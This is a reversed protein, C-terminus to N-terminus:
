IYNKNQLPRLALGIATAFALPYKIKKACNNLPQSINQWPNGMMCRLGTNKEIEPALNKFYAGTGCTYVADLLLDRAQLHQQYFELVQRLNILLDSLYAKAQHIISDFSISFIVLGQCVIFITTRATGIDIIISTTKPSYIKQPLISRAIAMTELEIVEPEWNVRSFIELYDNVISKKVAACHIAPHSGWPTNPLIQYDYYIEKLAFPLHKSIEEEEETIKEMEILKICSQKEPLGIIIKKTLLRYGVAENKLKDIAESLYDKNQIIGDIIIGPAVEAESFSVVRIKKGTKKLQILRLKYDSIDIGLSINDSFFSM